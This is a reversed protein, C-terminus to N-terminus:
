ILRRQAKAEKIRQEAIEYYKPELEIGIFNRNTNVCAVGTSGSGMTFDLVTDEENTYTKILDELLPVPKETPHFGNYARKYEFVNSKFSSNEDLNFVANIKKNIKKLESYPKFCDLKDINLKEILENYVEETCLLFQSTDIYFFHEAKRHGLVREIDKRSMNLQILLEKAYNRLPNDLDLDYKKRYVSLDEVFNVPAKKSSLNNAFHDKYWYLPYTFAMNYPKFQRLHSTYPEQSFLILTGKLRLLKECFSFMEETPIIEDWKTTNKDWGKLTIGKLTGYPPDTLVMDAKIGQEALQPMIDLCDGQFLKVESM